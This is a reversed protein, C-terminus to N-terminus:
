PYFVEDSWRWTSNEATALTVAIAVPHPHVISSAPDMTGFFSAPIKLHILHLHCNQYVFIWFFCVKSEELKNKEKFDQVYRSM